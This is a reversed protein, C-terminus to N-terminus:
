RSGSPHFVQGRVRIEANIPPKSPRSGDWQIRFRGPIWKGPGTAEFSAMALFNLDWIQKAAPTKEPFHNKPLFHCWIEGLTPRFGRPVRNNRDALGQQKSGPLPSSVMKWRLTRQQVSLGLFHFFSSKLIASIGWSTTTVGCSTTTVGCSTQRKYM